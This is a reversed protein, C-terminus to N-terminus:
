AVPAISVGVEQGCGPCRWCQTTITSEGSEMQIECAGCLVALELVTPKGAIEIRTSM